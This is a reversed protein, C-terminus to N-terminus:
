GDRCVKGEKGGPVRRERTNAKTCDERQRRKQGCKRRRMVERKPEEEEEEEKERWGERWRRKRKEFQADSEVEKDM